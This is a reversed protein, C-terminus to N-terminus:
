VSAVRIGGRRVRADTDSRLPHVGSPGLLDRHGDGVRVYELGARLQPRDVTARGWSRDAQRADALYRDITAASMGLLESRVALSYRDQGDVLEGHAELGALLGPLAAVLYKGCQYGSVAWVRQLVRRADYSYKVSRQRRGPVPRPGPRAAAVLRRRANDRSWGTVAVVEELLRGKDKKAAQAYARAYKKTIEARAGM